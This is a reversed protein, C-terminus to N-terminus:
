KSFAQNIDQTLDDIDEIGVSIRVLSAEIGIKQRHAEPIAAHTMTAPHEILSEVGGLSEALTFIQLSQLFRKVDIEEKLVCSIMGGFNRMQQAALQHQPHNTLGPYIVKSIKPHNQLFEALKLANDCHAQMRVHLTKLSRILLFCDMPGPVGGQANQLFYLQEALTQDNLILAGGLVDSHGGIYKTTSHCVVDAGLHLPNQLYPTAFTNDVALIPQQKQQQNIDCLAAIDLIKLLPNSPTELWVLQTQPTFATAFQKLDTMDCQTYTIGWHNFVQTFLRLTGGYVDDSIIVHSSPKLTQLLTNLANCGSAFCLGFKGGELAALTTQLIDRTPNATRAYEYNGIPQAPARQAFTTSLCIPPMVAGTVEDHHFGAHIAKTGFKKNSFDM